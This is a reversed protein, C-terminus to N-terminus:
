DFLIIELKIPTGCYELPTFYLQKIVRESRSCYNNRTEEPLSQLYEVNTCRGLSLSLFSALQGMTGWILPVHAASIDMM